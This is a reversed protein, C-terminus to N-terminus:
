GRYVYAANQMVNQLGEMIKQAVADAVKQQTSVDEVIANDFNVTIPSNVTVQNTNQGTIGQELAKDSARLLPSLTNFRASETLNKLLEPGINAVNEIDQKRVGLSKMYLRQAYEMGKEETYTGKKQENAIYRAIDKFDRLQREAESMRAERIQQQAAKTAAVEDAGAKIWEDKQRKIAAIRKETESLFVDSIARQAENRKQLIKEAEEQAKKTEAEMRKQAEESTKKDLADKKMYFVDWATQLDLGAKTNAEVEDKLRNLSKEYENANLDRLENGIKTYLDSIKKASKEREEARKAAAATERKEAEEAAKQTAAIQNEAASSEITKSNDFIKAVYAGVEALKMKTVDWMAGLGQTTRAMATTVISLNKEYVKVEENHEAWLRKREKLYKLEEQIGALSAGVEAQGQVAALQRMSEAKQKEADALAHNLDYNIKLVENAEEYKAIYDDFGNLLHVFQSGGSGLTNTVFDLGEGANRAQKYADALQKTQEIYSKQTGDANRLSVGYRELMKAAESSPSNLLERNLKQVSKAFAEANTGDISLVGHLKEADEYAMEFREALAFIPETAAVAAQATQNIGDNVMKLSQFLGVGLGAGLGAGGLIAGIGSFNSLGSLESKFSKIAMIANSFEPSIKSLGGLLKDFGSANMNNLQIKLKNLKLTEKDLLGNVQKILSLNKEDASNLAELRKKLGNVVAEQAKYTHTLKQLELQYARVNDGAAKAGTIEIDFKLKDNRLEAQMKRMVAQTKSDVKALEAEYESYNLSLKLELGNNESTAM